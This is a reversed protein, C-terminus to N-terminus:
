NARLITYGKGLVTEAIKLEDKYVADLIRESSPISFRLALHAQDDVNARLKVAIKYRVDSGRLVPIAITFESPLAVDSIGKVAKEQTFGVRTTGDVLLETQATANVTSRLNRILNMLDAPSPETIDESLDELREIAKKHPWPSNERMSRWQIWENSFEFKMEAIWQCRGPDDMSIHYDLIAKFGCPGWTLLTGLDDGHFKKIYTAWSEASGLQEHTRQPPIYESNAWERQGQELDAHVYTAGSIPDVWAPAIVVAPTNPVVPTGPKTDAM